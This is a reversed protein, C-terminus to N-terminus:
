DRFNLQRTLKSQKTLLTVRASARDVVGEPNDGYNSGLARVQEPCRRKGFYRFEVLSRKINVIEAADPLSDLRIPRPAPPNNSERFLDPSPALADGAM